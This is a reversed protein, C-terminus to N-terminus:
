LMWITTIIIMHSLVVELINKKTKEPKGIHILVRALDKNRPQRELHGLMENLMKDFM